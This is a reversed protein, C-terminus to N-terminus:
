SDQIPLDEFPPVGPVQLTAAAVEAPPAPFKIWLVMSQAPELDGYWRDSWGSRLAAIYSGKEDKLVEYKKGAGPDMLYTEDYRVEAQAKGTGQNRLRVRATLTPGKRRFETVEVVVGPWNSEQSALVAGAAPPAAAPAAMPPAAAPTDTGAPTTAVGPAPEAAPAAAPAEAAPASEPAAAAGTPESKQCAAAVLLLVAPVVFSMTRLTKRM